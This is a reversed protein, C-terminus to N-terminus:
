MLCVSVQSKAARFASHRCQQARSHQDPRIRCVRTPCLPCVELIWLFLPITADQAVLDYYRVARNEEGFSPNSGPRFPAMSIEVISAATHHPNGVSYTEKRTTPARPDQSTHSPAPTRSSMCHAVPGTEVSHSHRSKSIHIELGYGVLSLFRSRWALPPVVHDGLSDIKM